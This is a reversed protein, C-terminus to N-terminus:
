VSDKFAASYALGTRLGELSTGSLEPHVGFGTGQGM